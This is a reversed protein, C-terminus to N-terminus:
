SALGNRPPSTRVNSGPPSLSSANEVGMTRAIVQPDVNSTMIGKRLYDEQEAPDADPDFRQGSFRKYLKTLAQNDRKAVNADYIDAGWAQQMASDSIGLTKLFPYAPINAQGVNVRFIGTAPEMWIRFTKGTGPQVNFHAEHEGSQKTRTYIGPRLRAQNVISYENGRNIVTGRQTYYPVHLVVDERSDLEGGTEEDFLKWTGTLPTNLNSMLAKKQAEQSFDQPGSYRLDTLELRHKGDSIPFSKQLSGVIGEYILERTKTTDDFARLHAPLKPEKFGPIAM